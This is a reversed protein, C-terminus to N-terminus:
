PHQIDDSNEDTNAAEELKKYCKRVLPDGTLERVQRQFMAIPDGAAAELSELIASLGELGYDCKSCNDMMQGLTVITPPEDPHGYKEEYERVTERIGDLNMFNACKVATKM